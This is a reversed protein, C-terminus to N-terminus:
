PVISYEVEHYSVCYQGQIVICCIAKDGSWHLVDHQLIHQTIILTVTICTTYYYTNCHYMNHLIPTIDTINVKIGGATVRTRSPSRIKTKGPGSCMLRPSVERRVTLGLVLHDPVVRISLGYM